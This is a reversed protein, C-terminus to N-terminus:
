YGLLKLEWGEVLESLDSYETEKGSDDFIQISHFEVFAQEPPNISDGPIAPYASYRIEAQYEPYHFGDATEVEAEFQFTHSDITAM